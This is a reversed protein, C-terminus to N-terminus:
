KKVLPLMKYPFRREDAHAKCSEVINDNEDFICVCGSKNLGIRSNKGLEYGEKFAAKWLRHATHKSCLPLSNRGMKEVWKREFESM